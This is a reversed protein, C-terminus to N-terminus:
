SALAMTRVGDLQDLVSVRPDIAAAPDAGAAVALLLRKALEGKLLTLPLSFRRAEAQGVAVTRLLRHPPIRSASRPSVLAITPAAWAVLEDLRAADFYENGALVLTLRAPMGALARLHRPIGLAEGRRRVEDRGMRTFSEDYAELVEDGAVVGAKASIIWVEVKLLRRLCGVGDMLRCHQEGIYLREALTHGGMVKRSTCTTIVRVLAGSM